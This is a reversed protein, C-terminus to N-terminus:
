ALVWGSCKAVCITSTTAPGAQLRSITRLQRTKRQCVSPMGVWLIRVNYGKLRRYRAIVDGLSLLTCSGHASARQPLSVHRPLLIKEGPRNEDGVFCASEDWAAQAKKEVSQPDYVPNM